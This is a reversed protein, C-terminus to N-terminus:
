LMGKPAADIQRAKDKSGPASPWRCKLGCLIRFGVKKAQKVYSAWVTLENGCVECHTNIYRKSQKHKIAALMHYLPGPYHEKMHSARDCMELNELRNDTKDGNLHHIVHGEPIPGHADFWVRRHVLVLGRKQALPHGPIKEAAYGLSTIYIRSM